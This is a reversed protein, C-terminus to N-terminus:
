PAEREMALDAGGVNPSAGARAEALGTTLKEAIDTSTSAASRERTGM